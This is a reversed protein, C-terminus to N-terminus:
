QPVTFTGSVPNYGERTATYNHSGLALPTLTVEGLADTVGSLSDVTVAVGSLPTKDVSDVVNFKVSWVEALKTMEIIMVISGM